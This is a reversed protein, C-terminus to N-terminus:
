RTRMFVRVTSGGSGSRVQVLDCVQNALWLGYGGIQASGPMQRGALPDDIRGGDTVECILSDPERWIRLVGGGGGHRISNTAIENVALVFDERRELTLGGSIAHRDVLGRIEALESTGFLLTRALARPEPLPDGFSGAPADLGAFEPSPRRTGNQVVAPHTCRAGAIVDADLGETDYPCLLSLPGDSAFAVNLLAEHRHCEAIEAAGRGVWMPEGIGWVRRGDAPRAAIFRRLAPILRAPNAGVERMDFFRIGQADSGLEHQLLAIKHADLGAIVPEEAALGSRIFALAGAVFEEMGSYLLADHRLAVGQDRAGAVASVSRTSGSSVRRAGSFSAGASRDLCTRVAPKTPHKRRGAKPM